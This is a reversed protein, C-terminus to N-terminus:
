KCGKYNNTIVLMEVPSPVVKLGSYIGVTYSIKLMSANEIAAKHLYEPICDSSIYAKKYLAHQVGSRSWAFTGNSCPRIYFERIRWTYYYVGDEKIKSGAVKCVSLTRLSGGITRRYQRRRQCSFKYPGKCNRDSMGFM